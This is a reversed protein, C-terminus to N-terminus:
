WEFISDVYEAFIRAPDGVPFQRLKSVSSLLDNHLVSILKEPYTSFCYSNAALEDALETQHNGQLTSNVVVIFPKQLTICEIISGAGCHSIILDAHKMEEDLTPKFRFCDFSIGRAGCEDGLHRPEYKGRGIQLVLSQCHIQKLADVFQANDIQEIFEDFETTGVTIFVRSFRSM